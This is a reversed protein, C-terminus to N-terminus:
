AMYVCDELQGQLFANNVDMQRLSWGNTVVLFLLIRVITPKAVPSFTDTYDLGLRQHFGKTVLRAKYRDVSGDPKRKIWFVWKCGVVNQSMTSPVLDWTGNRILVDFEDSMDARWRPDKLALTHSTPESPATDTIATLSYRPNPRSINNKSCTVM